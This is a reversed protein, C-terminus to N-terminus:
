KTLDYPTWGKESATALTTVLIQKKTEDVVLILTKDPTQNVGKSDEFIKLAVDQARVGDLKFVQAINKTFGGLKLADGDIEIPTKIEGGIFSFAENLPTRRFDVDIKMKLRDAISEPLTSTPVIVRKVREKSFDTRTSEDWALFTGVALNPAARDPLATVLQVHQPGVQSVTALAFVEAMAPVRGIIMRKGQEQPNMQQFQPVLKGALEALKDTFEQELKKAANKAVPRKVGLLIESYFLPETLHISWSVAETQEGLWELGNKVFPRVNEPFWTEQLSLTLPTFLVTIHRSRDTLPLLPDLQEAPNRETIAQVMEQAQSRPGVVLTQPDIIMYAREGKIYVPQAYTDIREGLQEILQSRKQDEVLHVVAAIDPWSGRMGPILCILLEEVEEPKRQFLDNLTTEILKAIPPVCYLLEQGLSEAQWLEAPHLNLVIQTGFPIYQLEIPKGKTPAGLRAYASIAVSENADGALSQSENRTEAPKAGLNKAGFQPAFLAIAGVALLIGGGIALGINRRKVSKQHLEKLRAATGKPKALQDLAAFEPLVAPTHDVPDPSSVAPSKAIVADPKPSIDPKQSIFPLPTPSAQTVAVVPDPNALELAVVPPEELVFTHSCKPCKGKRGLLSRDPLKLERGCKPCPIQISM